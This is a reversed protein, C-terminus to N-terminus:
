KLIEMADNYSDEDQIRKLFEKTDRALKKTEKPSVQDNEISDLLEFIDEDEMVRETNDPAIESRANLIAESMKLMNNSRKVIDECQQIITQMEKMISKHEVKDGKCRDNLLNFRTPLKNVHSGKGSVPLSCEFENSFVEAEWDCERMYGALLWDHGSDDTFYTNSM